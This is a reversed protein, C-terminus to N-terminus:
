NARPYSNFSIRRNAAVEGHTQRFTNLM